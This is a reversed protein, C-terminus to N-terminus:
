CTSSRKPSPALSFLCTYYTQEGGMPESKEENPWQEYRAASVSQSAPEEASPERVARAVAVPVELFEGQDHM